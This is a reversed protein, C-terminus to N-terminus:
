SFNSPQLSLKLRGILRFYRLHIIISKL